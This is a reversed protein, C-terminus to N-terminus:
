EHATMYMEHMQFPFAPQFSIADTLVCNVQLRVSHNGSSIVATCMCQFRLWVYPSSRYTFNSPCILDTCGCKFVTNSYNYRLTSFSVFAIGTVSRPPAYTHKRHPGFMIQMYLLLAIGTLPRLFGHPQSINIIV